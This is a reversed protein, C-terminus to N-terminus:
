FVEPTLTPLLTLDYPSEVHTVIAVDCWNGGVYRKFTDLTMLGGIKPGLASAYISDHSNEIRVYVTGNIIVIESAMTAHSWSGGLTLVTVGNADTDTGRIAVNQGFEVVHGARLALLAAEVKDASDPVLSAGMQRKQADATHEAAASRDYWSASYKGVMSAPFVGTQCGERVVASISQGGGRSWGKSVLWTTLANVPEITQESGSAIQKLLQIQYCHDFYSVGACSGISGQSPLVIELPDLKMKECVEWWPKLGGQKRLRDNTEAKEELWPKLSAYEALVPQDTADWPAELGALEAMVEPTESNPLCGFMMESYSM